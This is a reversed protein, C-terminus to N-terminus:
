PERTQSRLEDSSMRPTLAASKMLVDIQRPTPKEGRPAPVVKTLEYKGATDQWVAYAEGPQSGPLVLRRKSDITAIKV